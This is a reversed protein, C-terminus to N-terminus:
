SSYDNEKSVEVTKLSSPIGVEPESAERGAELSAPRGKSYIKKESPGRRFPSFGTWRYMVSVEFDSSLIVGRCLSSPVPLFQRMVAGNAPPVAATVGRAAAGEHVSACRERACECVPM